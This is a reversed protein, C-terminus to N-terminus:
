RSFRYVSLSRAPLTVTWDGTVEIDETFTEPAITDPHDLTNEADDSPATLRTVKVSVIPKKKGLGRFDVPFEQATESTNVVKLIIEDGDQAASAFLGRQGELGAVPKGDITLPLVREGRNTAFMQQVLYSSTRVSRENDFWIMDPRWQWGEVHAFLPAYTAMGVIDANREMGTMVAGELLAPYFHNYKKGKGHCAYEGAFVKPGRRPYSDYRTGNALFWSEPRYFHEDVLDVGLRRMEPWLYDFKEGEPTPGASGIIRIEPHAARLRSVFPRLREVYLSDWQENGIALYKLGFPEPHGMRARLSGWQSVTDGNAFEILDLAVDIYPGLSDVPVHASPCDRNQYQCAMGVNLVPLPEAGIDEALQFYEYFGLGGTQFYDPALRHTFTSEWRNRNLPRNEVPGVTNKWQYRDALETGEVICGGPFRFVGPHLDSLAQVLDRRLGGECGRWTDAPFLSIHDMDVPKQRSDTLSIRIVGRTAPFEPVLTATYRKWEKGDVEITASAAVQTEGQSAPDCLEIRVKGGEEPARMYASFNYASDARFTVGFFGENEIGTYKDNHGAGSLRVYHPNRGFPGDDRIEFNGSARWGMLRQPFEFSRNKVMEAYLGGDAGYNIDEFFIGWMTPPIEAGPRDARLVAPTLAQSATACLAYLACLASLTKRIDSM